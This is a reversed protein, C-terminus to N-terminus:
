SPYLFICINLLFLISVVEFFASSGKEECGECIVGPEKGISEPLVNLNDHEELPKIDLAEVIEISGTL